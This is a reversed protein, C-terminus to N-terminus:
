GGVMEGLTDGLPLGVLLKVRDWHSLVVADACGVGVMLAPTDKVCGCPVPVPNPENLVEVVGRAEEEDGVKLLEGVKGGEGEWNERLPEGLGLEEAERADWVGLRVGVEVAETVQTLGLGTDEGEGGGPDRHGEAVPEPDTLSRAVEESRGEPLADTDTCPECLAGERVMAGESERTLM